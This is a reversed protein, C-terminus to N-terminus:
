EKRGLDFQYSKGPEAISRVQKEQVMVARFRYLVSPRYLSGLMGWFHSQEELGLNYLEIKIKGYTHDLNPTNNSTFVNKAQFFGMVYSLRKLAEKYNKEQGDLYSASFLIYLNLKIPPNYFQVENGVRESPQTGHNMNVMDSEIKVLSMCVSNESVSSKGDMDVVPVLKIYQEQNDRMKLKLFTDIEEKIIDLVDDIM